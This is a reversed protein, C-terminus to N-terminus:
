ETIIKYNQEEEAKKFVELIKQMEPILEKSVDTLGKLHIESPKARCLLDWLADLNEGYWDPFHLAEKLRLHVESLYKCGTFDIIKVGMEHIWIDYEKGVAYFINIIQNMYRTINDPVLNTGAFYIRCPELGTLLRFLNDPKNDDWEPLNLKKALLDRIEDINVCNRVDIEIKEPEKIYFGYVGNSFEGSAFTVNRNGINAKYVTMEHKQNYIPDLVNIKQNTNEWEYDFININFLKCNGEAGSNAFRWLSDEPEPPNLCIEKELRIRERDTRNVISTPITRIPHNEPVDDVLYVNFPKAKGEVVYKEVETEWWPLIINRFNEIVVDKSSLDEKLFENYNYIILAYGDKELWDLDGIWDSYSAFNKSPTPFDFINYAKIFYDELNKIERGDIEAVFLTEDERLTNETETFDEYKVNYIKNKM